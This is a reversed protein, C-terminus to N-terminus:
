DEVAKNVEDQLFFCFGMKCDGTNSVECNYIPFISIGSVVTINNSNKVIAFTKLSIVLLLISTGLLYKFLKRRESILNFVMAMISISLVTLFSHRVLIVNYTGSQGSLIFKAFDENILCSSAILLIILGIVTKKKKM